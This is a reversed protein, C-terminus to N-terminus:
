ADRKVAKWILCRRMFRSHGEGVVEVLGMRDLESRRSRIGSESAPLAKGKAVLLRYRDILEDDSMPKKLIDLITKQLKSIHLVTEAAIHSTFPDNHRAHPMMFERRKGLLFVTVGLLM